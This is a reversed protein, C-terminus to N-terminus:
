PGILSVPTSWESQAGASVAAFRIWLLTGSKYGAVKRSKGTGPIQTFGSAGAPDLSVEALYRRAKPGADRVTAIFQGHAKGPKVDISTPAVLPVPAAKPGRVTFSMGSIDADTEANNEVLSKLTLLEKDFSARARDRMDTDFQLKKEDATVLDSSSRLNVGLTGLVTVSAKVAPINTFLPSEPALQQIGTLLDQRGNDNLQALDLEVHFRTTKKM